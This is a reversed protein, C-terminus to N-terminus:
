GLLNMPNHSIDYGKEKTHNDEDWRQGVKPLSNFLQAPPMGPVCGCGMVRHLINIYIYLRACLGRQSIQDWVLVYM